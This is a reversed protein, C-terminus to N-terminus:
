TDVVEVVAVPLSNQGSDSDFDPMCCYSNSAPDSKFVSVASESGFLVVSKEFVAIGEIEQPKGRCVCAEFTLKFFYRINVQYFGRNFPVQDVNVYTWIIEADKCRINTTKELIEQSYDTLFVKLDELCDKDRCSDMIKNCDIFVSDRFGNFSQGNFNNSREPM